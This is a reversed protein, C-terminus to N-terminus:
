LWSFDSVGKETLSQSGCCKAARCGEDPGELLVPDGEGRGSHTLDPRYARRTGVSITNEVLAAVRKLLCRTFSTECPQHKVPAEDSYRCTTQAHRFAGMRSRRELRSPAGSPQRPRASKNTFKAASSM